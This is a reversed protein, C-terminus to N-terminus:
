VSEYFSKYKSIEHGTKTSYFGMFILDCLSKYAVYLQNKLLFHDIQEKWNKLLVEIDKAHTIQIPTRTLLKIFLGADFLGFLEYLEEKRDIPLTSYFNEMRRMVAVIQNHSLDIGIVAPITLYIIYQQTASLPSDELIVKGEDFIWNPLKHSLITCGISTLAGYQIFKRRDM